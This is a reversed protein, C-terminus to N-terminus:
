SVDAIRLLKERQGLRYFRRAERRLDHLRSRRLFAAELYGCWAFALRSAERYREAREPGVGDRLRYRRFLAARLGTALAGENQLSLLAAATLYKDVEGQLELELQTVSRGARACFLLYLFHSVEETLACLADLNGGDLRVRPDRGGIESAVRADLVVGLRVEDGEQEVLTRSGDGPLPAAADAAILFETVPAHPELAYLAELRRQVEVAVGGLVFAPADATL